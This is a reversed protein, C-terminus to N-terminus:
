DQKFRETDHHGHRGHRKRKENPIGDHRNGHRGGRGHGRLSGLEDQDKIRAKVRKVTSLSAGTEEAVAQLTKGEFLSKAIERHMGEDKQRGRFKAKWHESNKKLARRGLEAAFLRRHQESESYGQLIKILADTNQNDRKFELPQILTRITIGRELLNKVNSICATFEKGLEDIWWIVLEDGQQLQTSLESFQPRDILPVCGRIKTETILKINENYTKFATIRNDIDKIKPSIRIYGYCTTM